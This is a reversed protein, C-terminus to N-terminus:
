VTEDIPKQRSAKLPEDIGKNLAIGRIVLIYIAAYAVVVYSFVRSVASDAAGGFVITMIAQIAFLAAVAFAFPLLRRPYRPKDYVGAVQTWLMVLLWYICLLFWFRPESLWSRALQDLNLQLVNTQSSNLFVLAASLIMFNILDIAMLKPGYKEQRTEITWSTFIADSFVLLAVLTARWVAATQGIQLSALLERFAGVFIVASIVNYFTM